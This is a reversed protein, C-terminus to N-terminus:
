RCRRTPIIKARADFFARVVFELDASLGAREKELAIRECKEILVAFGGRRQHVIQFTIAPVIAPPHFRAALLVPRLTRDANVFHM